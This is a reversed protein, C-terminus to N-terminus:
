ANKSKKSSGKTSMKWSGKSSKTKKSKTMKSKKSKKSWSPPENGDCNVHSVDEMISPDIGNDIAIDRYKEIMDENREPSRSFIWLGSTPDGYSCLGDATPVNTQGGAILAYGEEEDYALVWYNSQMFQVVPVTCFWVTVESAKDGAFVQSGACLAGPTPAGSEGLVPSTYVNGDIDESYNFVKILYGKGVGAAEQAGKAPNLYSYEATVCNFLAKSQFPSARQQHSYWKASTYQDLDFDDLSTVTKCPSQSAAGTLLTSSTILTIASSLKM